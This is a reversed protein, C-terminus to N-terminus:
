LVKNKPTTAIFDKLYFPEFYATDEIKKTLLKDYSLNVMDKASIHYNEDLVANKHQFIQNCKVAGDGIFIVKHDAFINAYSSSDIIDAQVKRFMKGTSAEFFSSFVEMRRADIM